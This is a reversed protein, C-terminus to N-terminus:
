LKSPAVGSRDGAVEVAVPNALHAHKDVALPKDVDVAVPIVREHPEVDIRRDADTRRLLKDRSDFLEAPGARDDDVGRERGTVARREPREPEPIGEGAYGGEIAEALDHLKWRLARVLGDLTMTMAMNM